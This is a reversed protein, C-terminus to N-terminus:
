AAWAETRCFPCCDLPVLLGRPHPRPSIPPVERPGAERYAPGSTPLDRLPQPVGWPERSSTPAQPPRPKECSPRCLMAPKPTGNKEVWSGPRPGQQLELERIVTGLAPCSLTAYALPMLLVKTESLPAPSPHLFTLCHIFPWLNCLNLAPLFPFCTEPLHPLHLHLSCCFCPVM